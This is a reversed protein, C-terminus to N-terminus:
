GHKRLINLVAESEGDIAHMLESFKELSLNVNGAEYRAYSGPFQGEFNSSSNRRRVDPLVRWKQLGSSRVSSVASIPQTLIWLCESM